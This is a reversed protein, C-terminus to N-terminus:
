EEKAVGRNQRHVVGEIDDLSVHVDIGAADLADPIHSIHARLPHDVRAASIHEGPEDLCVDVETLREEAAVRLTPLRGRARFFDEGDRLAPLDPFLRGYGGAGRAAEPERGPALCHDRVPHSAM